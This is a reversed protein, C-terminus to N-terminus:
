RRLMIDRVGLDAIIFYRLHMRGAELPPPTSEAHFSSIALPTYIPAARQQAM